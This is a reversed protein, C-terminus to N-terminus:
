PLGGAATEALTLRKKLTELAIALTTGISDLPLDDHYKM